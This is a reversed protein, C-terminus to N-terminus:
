LRGGHVKGCEPCPVAGRTGLPDAWVAPAPSPDGPPLAPTGLTHGGLEARLRELYDQVDKRSPQGAVTVIRVTYPGVAYVPPADQAPPQQGFSLLALLSYEGPKGVRAEIRDLRAKLRESM